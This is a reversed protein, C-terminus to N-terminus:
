GGALGLRSWWRGGARVTAGDVEVVDWDGLRSPMPAPPGDFQVWLRRSAGAFRGADARALAAELADAPRDGIRGSELACWAGAAAVALTFRDSQILAFASVPGGMRPRQSELATSFAPAFRVVRVGAAECVRTVDDMLSVDVACAPTPLGYRPSLVQLNWGRAREGHVADFEVRAFALWEDDTAIADNFPLLMWRVYRAHLGVHADTGHWRRDQLATALADVATAGAEVPVDSWSPTRAGPMRPVRALRVRAPGLSVLLPDRWWRSM